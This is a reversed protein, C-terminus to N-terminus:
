FDVIDFNLEQANVQTTRQAYPASTGNATAPATRQLPPQLPDGSEQAPRMLPTNRTELIRAM